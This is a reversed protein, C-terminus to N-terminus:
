GLSVIASRVQASCGREAMLVVISHHRQARSPREERASATLGPAGIWCPTSLCRSLDGRLLGEDLLDYRIRLALRDRRLEVQRYVQLLQPSAASTDITPDM